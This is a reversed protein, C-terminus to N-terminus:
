ARCGKAVQLAPLVRHWMAKRTGLAPKTPCPLATSLCWFALHRLLAGLLFVCVQSWWHRPVWASASAIWQLKSKKKKKKKLHIWSTFEDQECECFSALRASLEPHSGQSAFASKAFRWQISFESNEIWDEGAGRWNQGVDGAGKWCCCFLAGKFIHPKESVM